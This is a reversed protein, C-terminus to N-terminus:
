PPMLQTSWQRLRIWPAAAAGGAWRAGLARFCTSPRRAHHPASLEAAHRVIVKAMCLKLAQRHVALPRTSNGVLGLPSRPLATLHQKEPGPIASINLQVESASHGPARSGFVPTHPAGSVDFGTFTSLAHNTGSSGALQLGDSQPRAITPARSIFVASSPQFTPTGTQVETAPHSPPVTLAWDFGQLAPIIMCQTSLPRLGEQHIVMVHGFSMCFCVCIRHFAGTDVSGECITTQM